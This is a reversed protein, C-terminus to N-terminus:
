SETEASANEAADAAANLWLALARADDASLSTVASDGSDTSMEIQGGSARLAVVGVESGNQDACTFKDRTFAKTDQRPLPKTSMQM